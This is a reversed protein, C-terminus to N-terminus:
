PFCFETCFCFYYFDIVYCQYCRNNVSALYLRHFCFLQIFYCCFFHSVKYFTWSFISVPTSALFVLVLVFVISCIISSFYSFLNPWTCLIDISLSVFCARSVLLYPLLFGPFGVFSRLVFNFLSSKLLKAPALVSHSSDNWYSVFFVLFIRFVSISM